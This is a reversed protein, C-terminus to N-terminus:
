SSSRISSSSGALRGLMSRREAHSRVIMRTTHDDIPLLVVVESWPPSAIRVTWPQAERPCALNGTSALTWKWVEEVPADITVALLTLVCVPRTRATV